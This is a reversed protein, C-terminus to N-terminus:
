RCLTLEELPSSPQIVLNVGPWHEDERWRRCQEAHGGCVPFWSLKESYLSHPCQPPQIDAKDSEWQRPKIHPKCTRFKLKRTLFFHPYQYHGGWLAATPIWYSLTYPVCGTCIKGKKSIFTWLESFGHSPPHIALRTVSVALAEWVANGVGVGLEKGWWWLSLRFKFFKIFPLSMGQTASFAARM